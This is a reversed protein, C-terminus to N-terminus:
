RGWHHLQRRGPPFHQHLLFSPCLVPAFRQRAPIGSGPQSRQPGDEHTLTSACSDSPARFPFLRLPPPFFLVVRQILSNLHDLTAGCWPKLAVGWVLCLVSTPRAQAALLSIFVCVEPLYRRYLAPSYSNSQFMILVNRDVLMVCQPKWLHLHHLPPTTELVPITSPLTHQCSLLPAFNIGSHTQSIM